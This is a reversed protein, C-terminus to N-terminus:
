RDNLWDSIVDALHEPALAGDRIRTCLDNVASFNTSLNAMCEKRSGDSEDIAIGYTTVMGADEVFVRHTTVRYQYPTSPNM